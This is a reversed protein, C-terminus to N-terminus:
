ARRGFGVLTVDDFPDRGTAHTTVARAIRDVLAQPSATGAGQVATQLGKIENFSRGKVDLMDTVGDTYILLSDGPQLTVQCSEFPYGEM